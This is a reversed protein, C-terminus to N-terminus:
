KLEMVKWSFLLSNWNWLSDTLLFLRILCAPVVFAYWQQRLNNLGFGLFICVCVCRIIYQKWLHSCKIVSIHMNNVQKNSGTLTFNYRRSMLPCLLVLDSQAKACDSEQRQLGSVYYIYSVLTSDVLAYCPASWVERSQRRVQILMYGGGGWVFSSVKEGTAVWTYQCKFYCNLTSESRFVNLRSLISHPCLRCLGECKATQDLEYSKFINRFRHDYVRKLNHLLLCRLSNPKNQM